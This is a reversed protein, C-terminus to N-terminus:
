EHEGRKSWSVNRTEKMELLGEWQNDNEGYSPRVIEISAKSPPQVVNVHLVGASPDGSSSVEILVSYHHYITQIAELPLSTGQQRKFSSM